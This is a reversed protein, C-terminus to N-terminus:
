KEIEFILFKKNVVTLKSVNATITQAIIGKYLNAKTTQSIRLFYIKDNLVYTKSESYIIHFLRSIIFSYNMEKM